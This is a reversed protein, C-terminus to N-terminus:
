AQRRRRARPVSVAEYNGAKMKRTLEDKERKTLTDLQGPLFTFEILRDSIHRAKYFQVKGDPRKHWGTIIYHRGTVHSRVVDGESLRRERWAVNTM